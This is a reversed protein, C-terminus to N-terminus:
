SAGSPDPPRIRSAITPGATPLAPILPVLVADPDGVRQAPLAQPAAHVGRTVCRWEPRHHLRSTDGACATCREAVRVDTPHTAAWAQAERGFFDPAAEIKDLAEWERAARAQEEATLFAATPVVAPDAYLGATPTDVRAGIRAYMGPQYPQYITMARSTEPSPSLACWWNDRM